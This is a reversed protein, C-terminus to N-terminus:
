FKRLRSKTGMEGARQGAKKTICESTLKVLEHVFTSGNGDEAAAVAWVEAQPHPTHERRTNALPPRDAKSRSKQQM